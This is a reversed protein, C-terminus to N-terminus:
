AEARRVMEDIWAPAYPSTCGPPTPYDELVRLREGIERARARHDAHAIGIQALCTNMSWQLRGPSAAMEAEIVTLLGALDLGAPKKVVRHATLEWGAAAVDPEPDALWAVRLAEAHRSKKALYNIVWDQAKPTRAGRLWADLEAEDLTAPRILLIALLRANAEGTRWLERALDPQNGLRKAVARLKSLNVDHADGHRANVEGIRRDRLEALEALVGAVAPSAAPSTM